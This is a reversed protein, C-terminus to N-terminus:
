LGYPHTVKVEKGDKDTVTLSHHKLRGFKRQYWFVMAQWFNLKKHIVSWTGGGDALEGSGIIRERSAM